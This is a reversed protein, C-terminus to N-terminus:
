IGLSETEADFMVLCKKAAIDKTLLTPEGDEDDSDDENKEWAGTKKPEFVRQWTKDADWDLEMGAYKSSKVMRIRYNCKKYFRRRQVWQKQFLDHSDVIDVVIPNAHKSRLIRGVSQVIDTKPTAM